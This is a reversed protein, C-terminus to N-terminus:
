IGRGQFDRDERFYATFHEHPVQFYTPLDKISDRIQNANLNFEAYIGMGVDKGFRLERILRERDQNTIKTDSSPEVEEDPDIAVDTFNQILESLKDGDTTFATM